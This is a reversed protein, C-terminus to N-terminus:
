IAVHGNFDNKGRTKQGIHGGSGGRAGLKKRKKASQVNTAFYDLARLQNQAPAHPTGVQKALPRGMM